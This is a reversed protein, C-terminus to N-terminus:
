SCVKEQYWIESLACRREPISYVIGKDNNRLPDRGVVAWGDIRRFKSVKHHILLQDLVENSVNCVTGDRLEAKILSGMGGERVKCHTRHRVSIHTPKNLLEVIRKRAKLGLLALLWGYLLLVM